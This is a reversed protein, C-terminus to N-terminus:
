HNSNNEVERTSKIDNYRNFYYLFVDKLIWLYSMHLLLLSLPAYPNMRAALIVLVIAICRIIIVIFPHLFFLFSEVHTPNQLPSISPM